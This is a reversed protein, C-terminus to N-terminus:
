PDEQMNIDIWGLRNQKPKSDYKESTYQGPAGSPLYRERLSHIFDQSEASNEGRSHEWLETHNVAARGCQPTILLTIQQFTHSSQTVLAATEVVRGHTECMCTLSFCVCDLQWMEVRQRAEEATLAWGHGQESEMDRERITKRLILYKLYASEISSLDIVFQMKLHKNYIDDLLLLDVTIFSTFILIGEQILCVIELVKPM